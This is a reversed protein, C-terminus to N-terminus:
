SGDPAPAPNEFTDITAGAGTAAALFDDRASRYDPAFYGLHADAM